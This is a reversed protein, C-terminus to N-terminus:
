QKGLTSYVELLRDLDIKSRARGFAHIYVAWSYGSNSKTVIQVSYQNDCKSVTWEKNDGLLYAYRKEIKCSDADAFPGPANGLYFGGRFNRKDATDSPGFYYVSFDPGNHETLSYNAPISIKFNTGAIKREILSKKFPSEPKAASKHRCSTVALVALCFSIVILTKNM